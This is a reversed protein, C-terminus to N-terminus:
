FWWFISQPNSSGGSTDTEQAGVYYFDTTSAQNTYESLIWDASREALSFRAEDTVGDAPTATGEAALLMIANTGEGNTANFARNTTINANDRLIGNVYLKMAGSTAGGGAYTVDIKTPTGTAITMNYTLNTWGSPSVAWRAFIQQTGADNFTSLYRDGGSDGERWIQYLYTDTESVSPEENPIIWASYTVADDFAIGANDTRRLRTASDGTGGDAANGIQGTDSTVSSNTLTYTNSTSDDTLVELHYVAQYSSTWVNQAGYTTSSAYCSAGSNGYYIYFTSTASSSLSDALFHLEGTDTSSAYAVLEFATETTEDSEVVRIDCGDAKVNTHFDSPLDALDVYVPFSSLTSSVHESNIEVPVRYTWSANFWPDLHGIATDGIAELFFNGSTNADFNVLLKLYVVEGVDMTYNLSKDATYGDSNKKSRGNLKTIEAAADYTDLPLEGWQPKTVRDTSTQETTCIEVQEMKSTTANRINETNCVEGYVPIDETVQTLVYAKDIYDKQDAFLGNFTVNQSSGSNNVVAVYVEAHSIGKTYTQKDTYIHIGEGTNDDTWDFTITQGDVTIPDPVGTIPDTGGNYLTVGVLSGVLTLSGIIYAILQQRTM